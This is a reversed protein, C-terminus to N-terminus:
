SQQSVDFLLMGRSGAFAVAGARNPVRLKELVSRMHSSVTRVGIGLYRAIQKDSMARSALTLVEIERRSIPLQEELEHALVLISGDSRFRVSGVKYWSGDHDVLWQRTNGRPNEAIRKALWDSLPGRSDSIVCTEDHPGILLASTAVLQDTLSKADRTPDVSNALSTAILALFEKAQDTPHDVRDVSLNLMGVYRGDSTVLPTTVGEVLGAPILWDRITAITEGGGPVDRQRFPRETEMMGVSCVEDYFEKSNLRDAISNEFGRRVLTQHSVRSGGATVHGIGAMMFGGAVYPVVDSLEDLLDEAREKAGARSSVIAAVRSAIAAHSRLPTAM